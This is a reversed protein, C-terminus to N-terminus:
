RLWADLPASRGRPREVDHRSLGIDALQRDSLDAADAHRRGVAIRWAPSPVTAIASRLAILWRSADQRRGARVPHPGDADIDARTAETHM